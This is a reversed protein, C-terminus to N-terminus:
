LMGNEKMWWIKYNVSSRSRGLRKAIKSVPMGDICCAKLRCIENENWFYEKKPKSPDRFYAKNSKVCLLTDDKVREPEWLDKHDFLFGVLDNQKVTVWKSYRTLKLGHREWRKVVRWQVGMMKCVENVTLDEKSAEMRPMGIRVMKEIVATKTRGLKRGIEEPTM